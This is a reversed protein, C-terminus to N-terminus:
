QPQIRTEMGPIPHLKGDHTVTFRPLIIRENLQNAPSLVVGRMPPNVSLSPAVSGGPNAANFFAFDDAAEPVVTYGFDALAEITVLSLPNLGDHITGTMLEHGFTDARWHGDRTGEGGTNEIPVGSSSDPTFGLEAAAVRAMHGIFLPNDSGLGTVTNAYSPIEWLTGIGLVHGMEHTLMTVLIGRRSLTGVDISDVTIAGFATLQPSDDRIICPGGQGVTGFAGDISDARIVIMVNNEVTDVAPVGFGCENARFTVHYPILPASIVQEWRGAAQLAAQQVITPVNGVFRVDIKFGAPGLVAVSVPFSGSTGGSTVTLTATGPAVGTVVGTSSVTAVSPNDISYTYTRKLIPAGGTTLASAQTRVSHNVGMDLVSPVLKISGIAAPNVTFSLNAHATDLIATVTGSGALLGTLLGTPSVSVFPSITTYRPTRGTVTAGTRDVITPAPITLTDGETLTFSTTPFTMTAVAPPLVVIPLEASVTGVSITAITNGPKLGSLVGANTVTAISPDAVSWSIASQDLPGSLQVGNTDRFTVVITDTREVEVTATDSSFTIHKVQDPLITAPRKPSTAGDSGGCSAVTCALAISAAVAIIPRPANMRPANMRQIFHAITHRPNWRNSIRSIRTRFAGQTGHVRGPGMSM